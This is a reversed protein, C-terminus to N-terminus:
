PKTTTQFCLSNNTILCRAPVTSVASPPGESRSELHCADWDLSINNIKCQQYAEYPCFLKALNQLSPSHNEELHTIVHVILSSLHYLNLSKYKYTPDCYVWSHQQTYKASMQTKKFCRVSKSIEKGLIVQDATSTCTDCMGSLKETLCEGIFCHKICCWDM